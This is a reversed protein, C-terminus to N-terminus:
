AKLEAFTIPNAHLCATLLRSTMQQEWSRRNFRYCFEDLNRQLLDVLNQFNANVDIADAATGNVFTNPVPDAAAVSLPHYLLGVILIAISSRITNKM